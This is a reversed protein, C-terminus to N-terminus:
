KEGYGLIASHPFSYGNGKKFADCNTIFDNKIDKQKSEPFLHLNGWDWCGNILPDLSDMHWNTDLKELEFNKLSAKTAIDNYTDFDTVGFLPGHPLASLEHHKAFAQFFAGLSSQEENAGWVAFAFKGNPKLVRHIEKFVTNPEAFHHVVFNAIVVDMSNDELPMNEADSQKFTLNPHSANAQDIMKQSFDIGIVKAGSASIKSTSNGAACGIDLVKLNADVKTKRLLLPLTENTLTAWTDNYSPSCRTWTELEYARVANQNPQEM